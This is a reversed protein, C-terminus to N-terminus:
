AVHGTSAAAMNLLQPIITLVLIPVFSLLTGAFFLRSQQLTRMSPSIRVALVIILVILLGVIGYYLGGLTYWWSPPNWAFANSLISSSVSVLCLAGTALQILIVLQRRGKRQPLLNRPFRLLLLFLCFVALASTSAGLAVSVNDGLAAGSLSGFALMLLTCFWFLLASVLPQRAYSYLWVLAGVGFFLAGIFAYTAYWAWMAGPTRPTALRAVQQAEYIFLLVFLVGVLIISIRRATRSTISRLAAFPM